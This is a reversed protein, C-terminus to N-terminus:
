RASHRQWTADEVEIVVRGQFIGVARTHIAINKGVASPWAALCLQERSSLSSGDLKRIFRGAREM